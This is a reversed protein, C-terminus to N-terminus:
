DTTKTYLITIYVTSNLYISEGIKCYVKSYNNTVQRVDFWYKDNDIDGIGCMISGSERILFSNSKDIWMLNANTVGTLCEVQEGSVTPNFVLTKRYLPNGDIWKGVKQEETSYVNYNYVENVADVLNSKNTTNLDAVDGIKLLDALTGFEIKKTTGESVVPFCCQSNLDTAKELESIKIEAM